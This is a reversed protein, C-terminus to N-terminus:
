QRVLQAKERPSIGDPDNVVAGDPSPVSGMLGNLRESRSVIETLPDGTDRMWRELRERMDTLVSDFRGDHALNNAENPDFILDYLAQGPPPMDRWGNDMWLTKSLGDDCNPLVPRTRGDFRLIYKWRETRVCRQPECSAHYNIEAFIEKRVAESNGTVAPMISTGQLWEPHDIGTLDCITPFLDVHSVLSDCVKGGAFGGPGSMILMVGIGGDTLNCKMRPFAIGHDTTCIILTNERLGNRELADLVMGMKQDLVRASAKFRAMDERTEPTDPLPAPPLSYNPNNGPGPDRFERHTEAFGVSLFFPQDPTNNLFESAREHATEHSGLYEDYGITKWPIEFMSAIHQAGALISTYGAKRLTHVIHHGYNHLSFGRHALGLMGNSHAYQGTLLCARSPSCTPNACFAQRFLIGEEALRQLNPTPVAHGYPQIYRGTDHSHIYLINHKSM